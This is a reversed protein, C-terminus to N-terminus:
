PLRPDPPQATPSHDTNGGGDVANPCDILLGESFWNNSVTTACSPAGSLNSIKVDQQITHGAPNWFANNSITGSVTETPKEFIGFVVCSEFMNRTITVNLGADYTICEMHGTASTIEYDHIYNDAWTIRNGDAQRNNMPDTSPGIENHTYASDDAASTFSGVDMHNFTLFTDGRETDIRGQYTYGNFVYTQSKLRMCSAVMCTGGLDGDFTLFSTATPKGVDICSTGQLTTGDNNTSPTCGFIATEGAANTITCRLSSSRGSGSGNIDQQAYTGAKVRVIDGGQCIDNAADLSGCAAADNYVVATNSRTCTGGSTDMWINASGTPTTTTTGVVIRGHEKVIYLSAVAGGTLVAGISVISGM